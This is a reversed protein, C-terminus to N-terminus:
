THVVRELSLRWRLSWNVPGEKAMQLGVAGVHDVWMLVLVHSAVKAAAVRGRILM